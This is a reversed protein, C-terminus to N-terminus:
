CCIRGSMLHIIIPISVAVLGWLMWPHFFLM